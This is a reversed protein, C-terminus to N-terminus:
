GVIIVRQMTRRRKNKKKPQEEQSGPLQRGRLQIKDGEELGKNIVVFDGNSEGTEVEVPDGDADYVVSKGDKIEVADIPVSLVDKLQQVIITCRATMGPKLRPDVEHILIEIDFVNKETDDDRHALTSIDTVEGTFVTDKVADLRVEVKQGVKVRSIDIENITAMVKMKGQSPIEILSQSRWPTYGVKLKVMRGSEWVKKYVVMGDTPATLRLKKLDDEAKKVKLKAQEVELQAQRLRAANIKKQVERKKLLQQYSLEAKKLNLEIERRKNEAEYISNKANLRAQELSYAEMKINNELEAMQNQIDAKTSALSALATELTNRAERLRQLQESTDFQILFDGKKVITGEPVLKVIRINGWVNSPAKVVFSELAQLEGEVEVTINLDGRKVTFLVANEKSPLFLWVFIGALASLIGWKVGKQNLLRKIM